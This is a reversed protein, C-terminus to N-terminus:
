KLIGGGGLVAVMGAGITSVVLLMLVLVLVLMLVLVLVLVLMVDMPGRGTLDGHERGEMPVLVMQEEAPEELAKMLHRLRGGCLPVVLRPAERWWWCPAAEAERGLVLFPHAAIPRDLNNTAAKGTKTAKGQFRIAICDSNEANGNIVDRAITGEDDTALIYLLAEVTMGSVM